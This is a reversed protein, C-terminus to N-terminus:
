LNQFVIHISTGFCQQTMNRCQKRGNKWEWIYGDTVITLGHGSERCRDLINKLANGGQTRQTSGGSLAWEIAQTPLTIPQESHATYAQIKKFFGDGLDCISFHMKRKGPFYQGCAAFPLSCNSHVQINTFTEVFFDNQLWERLHVPLTQLSHHGLLDNEIYDFFTNVEDPQFLRAQVTSQQHDPTHFDDKDSLLKYLGNRMLLDMGKHEPGAFCEFKVRQECKLKHALAVLLASLNGEFFTLGSFDLLLTADQYGCGWHYFSWLFDHGSKGTVVTVPFTMKPLSSYQVPITNPNFTKPM